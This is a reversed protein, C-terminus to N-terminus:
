ADARGPLWKEKDLRGERGKLGVALFTRHFNHRGGSGHSRRKSEEIFQHDNKEKKKEIQLAFAGGVTQQQQPLGQYIDLNHQSLRPRIKNRIYIYGRQFEHPQENCMKM